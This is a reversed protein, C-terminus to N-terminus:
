NIEYGAELENDLHEQCTTNVHLPSIPVFPDFPSMYFYFLSCYRELELM